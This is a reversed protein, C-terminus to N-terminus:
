AVTWSQYLEDVAALHPILVDDWFATILGLQPRNVVQSGDEGIPVFLFCTPDEIWILRVHTLRFPIREYDMTPKGINEKMKRIFINHAMESREGNIWVNGYAAPARYQQPVRCDITADGGCLGGRLAWLAWHSHWLRAVDWAPIRATSPGQNYVM